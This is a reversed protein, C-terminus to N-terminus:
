GQGSVTLYVHPCVTLGVGFDEEISIRAVDGFTAAGSSLLEVLEIGIQKTPNAADLISRATKDEPPSSLAMAYQETLGRVLVCLKVGHLQLAHVLPPAPAAVVLAAAEQDAGTGVVGAAAAADM